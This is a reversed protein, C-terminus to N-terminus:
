SLPMVIEFLILLSYGLYTKLMLFELNHEMKQTKNPVHLM